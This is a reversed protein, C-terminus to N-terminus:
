DWTPWSATGGYYSSSSGEDQYSSGVVGSHQAFDDETEMEDDEVHQGHEEIYKDLDHEM